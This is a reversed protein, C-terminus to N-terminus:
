RKRPSSSLWWRIPWRPSPRPRSRATSRVEPMDTRQEIEAVDRAEVAGALRYLSVFPSALFAAWAVLLVALTSVIWRM